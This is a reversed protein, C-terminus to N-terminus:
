VGRRGRGPPARHRHGAPRRRRRRHHAGAGPPDHRRRHDADALIQRPQQRRDARGQLRRAAAQSSLADMSQARSIRPILEVAFSTIKRDRLARVVDLHATRSCSASRRRRRAALADIEDLTPPQVKLLVRAPALVRSRGLRSRRVGHLARRSTAASAPAASAHRVHSASKWCSRPSM